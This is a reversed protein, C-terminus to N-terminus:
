CVPEKIHQVLLLEVLIPLKPLKWLNRFYPVNAPDLPDDILDISFM